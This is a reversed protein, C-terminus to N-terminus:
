FISSSNKPTSSAFTLAKIIAPDFGLDFQFSTLRAVNAVSVPITFVDGVHRFGGDGGSHCRGPPTQRLL